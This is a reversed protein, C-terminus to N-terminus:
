HTFDFGVLELPPVLQVVFVRGLFVCYWVLSFSAVKLKVPLDVLTAGGSYRYKVQLFNM